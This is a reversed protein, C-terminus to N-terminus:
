LRRREEVGSLLRKGDGHHRGLEAEATVRGAATGPRRGTPGRTIVNPGHPYDLVM